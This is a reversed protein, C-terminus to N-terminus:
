AGGDTPLHHGRPASPDSGLCLPRCRERALAPRGLWRQQHYVPQEDSRPIHRAAVRLRTGPRRALHRAPPRGPQRPPRTPAPSCSSTCPRPPMSAPAHEILFVMAEQFPGATILHYDDLALLIPRNVTALDHILTRVFAEPQRPATPFSQLMPQALSPGLATELAAVVYTFFRLPDNDAEDLSLWASPLGAKGLWDTVPTTKGYGAPAVVLFLRHGSRLGEDLQRTLRPRAVLNPTPRPRHLKTTLLTSPM